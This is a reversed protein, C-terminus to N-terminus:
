WAVHRGPSAERTGQAGAYVADRPKGTWLWLVGVVMERSYVEGAGDRAMNLRGGNGGCRQSGLARRPDGELGGM